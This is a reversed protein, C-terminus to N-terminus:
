EKWGLLSPKFLTNPAGSEEPLEVLAMNSASMDQIRSDLSTYDFELSSKKPTAIMFSEWHGFARKSEFGSADVTSSLAAIAHRGKETELLGFFPFDFVMFGDSSLSRKVFKYFEVTYLRSVDLSSPHPLDIFVADFRDSSRRLWEFGDAAVVHVKPNSFVRQNLYVLPYSKALDIVSPDLEVLTISEIEPYKVLERAILGDGGGIVLAKKPVHKALNIAGHVITDHYIASKASGFQNRQDLFLNFDGSAGLGIMRLDVPVLDIDQYPSSIRRVRPYTRHLEITEKLARVGFSTPAVFYYSKLFFQELDDRHLAAFQPLAIACPVLIWRLNPRRPKARLLALAAAFASFLALLWTTTYLGNTPLIYKTVCISAAVAGLYNATLVFGFARRTLGSALSILLPLELGSLFGIIVTAIQATYVMHTFGSYVTVIALLPLALAACAALLTEVDALLGWTERTKFKAAAFAGVGLAGLYCGVTLSQALVTDSSLSILYRVILLEYGMSCFALVASMSLIFGLELDRRM